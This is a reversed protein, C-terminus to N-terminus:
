RKDVIKINPYDAPNFTVQKETVGFSIERMTLTIGSMKVKLSIPYYTNKAIVLDMKKPADKDKNAKSKKCLLYWADRTEKDISVDYGATIGSFMEADGQPEKNVKQNKIEIENNKSNYTWETKGDSWSVVEVGMMTGESRVKDGLAYTKTTMTSLLPIKIDVTMIIGEKEHKDMEAEMRSVIEQPTQAIAVITSAFFLIISFLKKM